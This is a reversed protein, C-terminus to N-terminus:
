GVEMNRLKRAPLLKRSLLWIKKKKKKKEASAVQEVCGSGV